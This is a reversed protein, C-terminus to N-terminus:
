NTRVFSQSVAADAQIFGTDSPLNDAPVMPIDTNESFHESIVVEDTTIQNSHLGDWTMKGWSKILGDSYNYGELNNWVVCYDKLTLLPQCPLIEDMLYNQWNWYHSIRENSDLPLIELGEKIYWENKGMGYEEDYDLENEYGFFNLLNDASYIQSVEAPDIGRGILTIHSLDFDGFMLVESVYSQWDLVEIDLNINIKALDEKIINFYESGSFRIRATLTLSMDESVADNCGITIINNIFLCILLIM